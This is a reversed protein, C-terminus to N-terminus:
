VVTKVPDDVDLITDVLDGSIEDKVVKVSAGNLTGDYTLNHLGDKSTPFNVYHNSPYYITGDQSASFYATRGM